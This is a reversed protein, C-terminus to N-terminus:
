QKTFLLNDTEPLYVTKDANAPCDNGLAGSNPQYDWLMQNNNFKKLVIRGWGIGCNTGSYYFIVKNEYPRTAISYLEINPVNYNQTDQLIVGSSNKVIYKVSLADLYYTKGTSKELKNEQKTIYLTIENGEFNSKYIGIYPDLEHNLDKVYSGEPINRLITNLPLIQSKCSVIFSLICIAIYNKNFTKM